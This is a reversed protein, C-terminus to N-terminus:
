IIFYSGGYFVFVMFFAYPPFLYIGTAFFLYVSYQLPNGCHDSSREWQQKEAQLQHQLQALKQLLEQNHTKAAQEMQTVIDELAQRWSEMDTQFQTM